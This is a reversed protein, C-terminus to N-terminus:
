LVAVVGCLGLLLLMLLGSVCVRATSDGRLDHLILKADKLLALRDDPSVDSESTSHNSKTIPNEHGSANRENLGDAGGEAVPGSGAVDDEPTPANPGTANHEDVGDTNDGDVHERGNVTVSTAESAIPPLENMVSLPKPETAAFAAAPQPTADTTEKLKKLHVSSILCNYLLVDAVTVYGGVVSQDKGDGGIYFHSIRHSNFLKDNIQRAIIEEGDVFVYAADFDLVLAVQYTTNPKWEKNPSDAAKNSDFVPSWKKDHTYSLGFLVTNGDDNMKMGLLPVPTDDKPVEDISVTAVLTFKNNAFYYPVNQGLKGVPWEAWSRQFTVGKERGTVTGHVTANVCLYEDAWTADSSNGSLRGVLGDTPEFPPNYVRRERTPNPLDDTSPPARKKIAGDLENWRRVVERVRQLQETLRLAILGHSGGSKTASEYLLILEEVSKRLLFSATANHAEDSIRGVDYVRAGDTVWLHLRGNVGGEEEQEKADELYVPTTFLIVKKGEITTTIFGNRVGYGKRDRSNGWVRTIPHFPGGMNIGSAVSKYVDNYGGGCSGMLLLYEDEWEVIPPDRCDNGVVKRSFIWENKSPDLHITMLLSRGDKDTAQIPFAITGDQLVAGSGGGAVTEKLSLTTWYLPSDVAHTENWRIKKEEGEEVVIGKALFLGSDNLVANPPEATTGYKGFLVYIGNDVVLTTPRIIDKPTFADRSATEVSFQACFM